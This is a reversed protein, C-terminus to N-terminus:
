YQQRRKPGPPPTSQSSGQPSSFGGQGTYDGNADTQSPPSAPATSGGDRSVPATTGGDDGTFRAAVTLAEM